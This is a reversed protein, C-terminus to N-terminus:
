GFRIRTIRCVNISCRGGYAHDGNSLRVLLAIKITTQINQFFMNSGCSHILWNRTNFLMNAIGVDM